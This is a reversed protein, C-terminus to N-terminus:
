KAIGVDSGECGIPSAVFAELRQLIGCEVDTYLGYVELQRKIEMYEDFQKKYNRILWTSIVSDKIDKDVMKHDGYKLDLWQEVDILRVLIKNILIVAEAYIKECEDHCVRAEYINLDREDYSQEVCPFYFDEVVGLEYTFLDDEMSSLRNFEDFVVGLPTNYTFLDDNIKILNFMEADVKFNEEFT